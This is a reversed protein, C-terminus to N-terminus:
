GGGVELEEAMGLCLPTLSNITMESSSNSKFSLQLLLLFPSSCLFLFFQNTSHINLNEKNLLIKSVLGCSILFSAWRKPVRATNWEKSNMSSQM